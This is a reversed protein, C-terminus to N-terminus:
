EIKIFEQLKEVTKKGIGKVNVLDDISKLDANASRYDIIKQATKPGIGPLQILEQLNNSNINISHPAPKSSKKAASSRNNIKKPQILVSDVPAPQDLAKTALLVDHSRRSFISDSRSYDYSAQQTQYPGALRIIAAILIVLSTVILARRESDTLGNM